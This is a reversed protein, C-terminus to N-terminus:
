VEMKVKMKNLIKNEYRSVQAQSIGLNSSVESQTYGNYYRSYILDQEEPSLSSIIERLAINNLDLDKDDVRIFKYYSNDSDIDIGDLSEEMQCVRRAEAMKKEDIDLFLCVETDTAERGLKQSMVDKAKLFSQNLKVVDRSVHVCKNERMCKFVEGMIYKCAYSSFVEGKSEDYNKAANVLGLKGAQYLDDKNNYVPNSYRNVIYYVLNINDMVRDIM